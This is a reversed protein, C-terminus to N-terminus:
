SNQNKQFQAFLEELKDWSGSVVLVDDPKLTEANSPSVM